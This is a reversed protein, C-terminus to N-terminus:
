ATGPTLFVPASPLLAGVHEVSLSYSVRQMLLMCWTPATIM